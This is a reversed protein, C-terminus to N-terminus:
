TVVSNKKKKKKTPSLNSSMAESNCLLHKIDQGVGATWKVRTTNYIPFSKFVIERFQGQVKIRRIQAEWTALTVPMFWQHRVAVATTL